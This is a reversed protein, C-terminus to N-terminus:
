DEGLLRRQSLGTILFIDGGLYILRQTDRTKLKEVKGIQASNEQEQVGAPMFTKSYVGVVEQRTRLLNEEM